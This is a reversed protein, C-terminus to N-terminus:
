AYAMVAGSYQSNVFRHSIRICTNCYVCGHDVCYMELEKGPHDECMVVAKTSLVGGWKSKDKKKLIDHGKIFKNHKKECTNCLMESCDKCYFMAETNLNDEEACITCSYDHVADNGEEMSGSFGTAM